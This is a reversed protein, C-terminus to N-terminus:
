KKNVVVTKKNIAFRVDTIEEIINLVYRLENYKKFAGSFKLNKLQESTFFFDVDYWRSLRTTLEELPMRDFNLVGEKWAAYQSADVKRVSGRRSALEYVYQEDPHLIVQQQRDTQVGVKGHVLTVAAETDDPYAMVNFGTGVVNVNVDPAVVIFPHERDAAVEFYAEGKLFVQRNDGAFKVPYRLETASNLWVRTGDALVLKYEGSRPITITNFLVEEQQLKGSSKEYALEGGGKRILVGDKELSDVAVEELSVKEGNALTLIAKSSGPVVTEQRVLQPLEAQQKEWPKWMWTAAVGVVLFIVAVYRLLYRKGWLATRKGPLKRKVQEWDKLVGEPKRFANDKEEMRLREQIHLFRERHRVDEALWAELRELEEPTITEAIRAAILRAIEYQESLDKM